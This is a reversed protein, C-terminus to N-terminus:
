RCRRGQTSEVELCPYWQFRRNIQLGFSVTLIPYSFSPPRNTPCLRNSFPHCLTQIQFTWSELYIAVCKTGDDDSPRLGGVARENRFNNKGFRENSGVKWSTWIMKSRLGKTLRFEWIPQCFRCLPFQLQPKSSSDSRTRRFVQELNSHLASFRPFKHEPRLIFM